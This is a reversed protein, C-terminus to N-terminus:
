KENEKLFEEFGRIDFDFPQIVSNGNSPLSERSPASPTPEDDPHLLNM